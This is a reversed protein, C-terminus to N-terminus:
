TSGDSGLEDRDRRVRAGELAGLKEIMLWLEPLGANSPLDVRSGAASWVNEQLRQGKGSGASLPCAEAVDSTM